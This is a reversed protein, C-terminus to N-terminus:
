MKVLSVIMFLTHVAYYNNFLVNNNSNYKIILTIHVTFPVWIVEFCSLQEEYVYFNRLDYNYCVTCYYTTVAMKRPSITRITHAYNAYWRRTTYVCLFVFSFIEFVFICRLQTLM